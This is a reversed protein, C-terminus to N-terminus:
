NTGPQLFIGRFSGDTISKSESCNVDDKGIFSFTGEVRENTLKTVKLTGSAGACDSSTDYSESNAPIWALVSGDDDSDLTYEGVADIGYMIIGMNNTEADSGSIMILRQAGAGTTTAVVTSVGQISLNNFQVGDVKAKVFGGTGTSGGGGNDDDSCAVSLALAMAIVGIKGFVKLSKM